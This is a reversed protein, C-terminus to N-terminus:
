SLIEFIFDKAKNYDLYHANSPQNKFWTIQRKAYNKTDKQGLLISKDFSIQGNLYSKFHKLGISKNIPHMIDIKQKLFYEVENIVNNKVMKLFRKEINEYLKKREMELVIFIIKYKKEISFTKTKQWESLIKGSCIKVEMARILRQTDNENIKKSIVPDIIKLKKYFYINGKEKHIKLIKKRVKEPISPVSSINKQLGNLYMGTGGVVIPVRKEDFAKKIEHVANELWWGLSAIKNLELKAFLKCSFKDLQFSDPRNTLIKLANYIQMSDANIITCPFKEAIEFALKTKGTATPGAIILINPIM